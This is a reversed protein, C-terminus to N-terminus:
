YPIYDIVIQGIDPIFLNTTKFADIMYQRHKALHHIQNSHTSVPMICIISNNLLCRVLTDDAFEQQIYDNVNRRNHLYMQQLIYSALQYFGCRLLTDCSRIIHRIYNSWRYEFVFLRIIYRLDDDIDIYRHSDVSLSCIHRIDNIDHYEDFTYLNNDSMYKIIIKETFVDSVVPFHILSHDIEHYLVSPNYKKCLRTFNGSHSITHRYINMLGHYPVAATIYMHCECLYCILKSQPTEKAIIKHGYNVGPVQKEKLMTEIDNLDDYYIGKEILDYLKDIEYNDILTKIYAQETM